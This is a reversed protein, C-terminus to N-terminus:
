ATDEGDVIHQPMLTPAIGLGPGQPVRISGSAIPPPEAVNQALLYSTALGSANAKGPLAAALHVAATLGVATDLFSTVVARKGRRVALEAIGAAITLGGLAGPKLVFVDALAASVAGLPDGSHVLLADAALPIGTVMALQVLSDLDGVPDEVYEINEREIQRLAESAEELTWRGGADLRVAADRGVARRLATVRAVDERITADGLKLKFTRFGAELARGGATGVEGPSDGAILANVAVVELPERGGSIHHALSVGHRQAALDLLAVDLAAAASPVRALWASATPRLDDAPRPRQQIAEALGYLAAEAQPFTDRSWGPLPAAEGWGGDGNDDFLGLLLGSRTEHM